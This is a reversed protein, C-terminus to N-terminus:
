KDKIVIRDLCDNLSPAKINLIAELSDKMLGGKLPRPAVQGLDDTAIKKILSVDLNFKKAIM